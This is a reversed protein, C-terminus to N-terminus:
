SMTYANSANGKSQAHLGTIHRSTKVSPTWLARNRSM